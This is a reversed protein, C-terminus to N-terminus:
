RGSEDRPHALGAFVVQFPQRRAIEALRKVDEFLLGARKYETM